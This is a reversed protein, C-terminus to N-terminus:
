YYGVGRKRTFLHDFDVVYTNRRLNNIIYNSHTHQVQLINTDVSIRKDPFLLVCFQFLVVSAEAIAGFDECIKIPIVFCLNCYVLGGFFCFTSSTYGLFQCIGSKVKGIKQLICNRLKM